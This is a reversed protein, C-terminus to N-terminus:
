HYDNHTWNACNCDAYRIWTGNQFISSNMYLCAGIHVYAHLHLPFTPLTSMVSSPSNNSLLDMHKHTNKCKKGELSWNKKKWWKNTGNHKLAFFLIFYFSALLSHNTSWSLNLNWCCKTVEPYNDGDIKQMRMVLDHAVKSFSVWNQLIYWTNFNQNWCLAIKTIWIHKQLCLIYWAKCMLYQQQRILIDRQQLLVHQFNRKLCKRLDRFM